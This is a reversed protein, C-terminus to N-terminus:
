DTYIAEASILMITTYFPIYYIRYTGGSVFGDYQEKTVYFNYRKVSVIYHTGRMNRVYLRIRGEVARLKQQGLNRLILRYWLTSGVGVLIVVGLVAAYALGIVPQRQIMTIIAGGESFFIIGIFIFVFALIMVLSCGLNKSGQQTFTQLKQQQAPSIRGNRNAVLDALTMELPQFLQANLQAPSQEPPPGEFMGFRDFLSYIGAALLGVAVIAIWIFGSM